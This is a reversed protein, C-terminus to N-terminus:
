SGRAERYNTPNFREFKMTCEYSGYAFHIIVM